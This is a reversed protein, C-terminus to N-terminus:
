RLAMFRSFTDNLRLDKFIFGESLLREPIVRESTLLLEQGMQGPLLRLLPAPVSLFAPRHLAKALTKTFEANTVPNPSTINYVGKSPTKILHITASVLDDLSVWSMWMKGSGLKGGFGLRFLPLAKKLFGGKPSFVAGFRMHVLRIGADKVVNSASEWKICTEALFGTGPSSQETLIEDGRNGYYGIASASLFFKPPSKLRVLASSLLWTDRARSLFILEKEKKTWFHSAINEGALHIVGQFGELLDQPIQGTSPDWVIAGPKESRTLAVVQFGLAELAKTLASGVFGSAGTLLVKQNSVAAAKDKKLAVANAVQADV